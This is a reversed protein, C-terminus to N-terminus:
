FRSTCTCTNNSINRDTITCTKKGSGLQATASGQRSCTNIRIQARNDGTEPQLTFSCGRRTAIGLGSAVSGSPGPCLLYDGTDLNLALANGNSPDQLCVDFVVITATVSFGGAQQGTIKRTTSYTGDKKVEDPKIAKTQNDGGEMRVVGGKVLHLPISQTIGQLGTVQITLTTSEGKLLQTRPATLAVGVNRYTTKTAVGRENLTLEAPGTIHSPAEFVCKRPSEAVLWLSGSTTPGQSWTLMTNSSSGDFPGPSKFPVAKSDL